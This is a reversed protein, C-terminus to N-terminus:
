RVFDFINPNKEQTYAFDQWFPYQKGHWNNYEVAIPINDIHSIVYEFFPFLQSLLWIRSIFSIFCCNLNPFVSMKIASMEEVHWLGCIEICIQLVWKEIYNQDWSKMSAALRWFNPM